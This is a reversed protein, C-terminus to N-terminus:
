TLYLLKGHIQPAVAQVDARNRPSDLLQLFLFRANPISHFLGGVGGTKLVEVDIGEPLVTIDGGGVLREERAQVLMAEGIALLVIMVGVGIGFGGLLLASRW